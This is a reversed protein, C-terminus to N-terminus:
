ATTAKAHRACASVVELKGGPIGVVAVHTAAAGCPADGGFGCTPTIERLPMDAVAQRMKEAHHACAWVVNTGEERTRWPMVAVPAHDCGPASCRKGPITVVGFVHTSM